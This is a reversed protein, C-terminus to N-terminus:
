NGKRRAAKIQNMALEIQEVAQTSDMSSDEGRLAKRAQELRAEADKIDIETAPVAADALVIVSTPTIEMFGGRVAVLHLQSNEDRYELLGTKLSTILPVHGANVGLYGETGPAVLSIVTKEVVTRDPAVVSLQFTNAM